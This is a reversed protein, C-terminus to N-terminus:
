RFCKALNELSIKTPGVTFAISSLNTTIQIRFVEEAIRIYWDPKM